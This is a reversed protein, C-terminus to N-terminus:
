KPKTSLLLRLYAGTLAALGGVLAGVIATVLILAISSGGLPLLRAIKQSLIQGNSFDIVLALVSWLLFIGIFGSWFSRSPKQAILSTVLFAAVAIVWWPGFMGFGGSLLAVLLISVIFKYNRKKM